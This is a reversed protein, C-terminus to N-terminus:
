MFDKANKINKNNEILFDINKVIDNCLNYLQSILTIYTANESNLDIYEYNTTKFKDKEILPIAKENTKFFTIDQSYFTKLQSITTMFLEPYIKDIIQQDAFRSNIAHEYFVQYQKFRFNFCKNLYQMSITPIFIKITNASLFRLGNYFEKPPNSNNLYRFLLLSNIVLVIIAESIFIKKFILNKPCIADFYKASVTICEEIISVFKTESSYYDELLLGEILRDLLIEIYVLLCIALIFFISILFYINM